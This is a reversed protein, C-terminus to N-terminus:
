SVKKLIAMNLSFIGCLSGKLNRETMFNTYLGINKFILLLMTYFLIIITTAAMKFIWYPQWFIIFNEMM